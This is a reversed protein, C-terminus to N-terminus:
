EKDKKPFLAFQKNLEYAIMEAIEHKVENLHTFKVWKEHETHHPHQSGRVTVPFSFM